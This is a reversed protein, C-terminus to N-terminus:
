MVQSRDQAFGILYGYIVSGDILKFDIEKESEYLELLEELTYKDSIVNKNLGQCKITLKFRM